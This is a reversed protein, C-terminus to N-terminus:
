FSYKVTVAVNDRDKLLNNEGGDFYNSYSFSVTTNNLYIGTLGVSIVKSDEFHQIEQVIGEMDHKMYIPVKVDWGQFVNNYSFEALFSYGWAHDDAILEDGDASTVDAYFGEFTLVTDDALFSPGFVHAGGLQLKALNEREPDGANNVMPTGDLFSLEGQM